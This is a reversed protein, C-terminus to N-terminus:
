RYARSRLERFTDGGSELYSLEESTSPRGLVANRHPFRGFRNIVEQHRIAYSLFSEFQPRLEAPSRDLLNRFLSVCREQSEGDEAHELPLYLFTAELPALEPDFGRELAAVSVRYALPDYAFSQATGRYLNRPFQDLVLVLALCSRAEQQWSDLLGRLARSPLGDFRARILEDFPSDREFWLRCRAAVVDPSDLDDGFWFGLVSEPTAILPRASVLPSASRQDRRM